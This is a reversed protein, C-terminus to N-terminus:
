WGACVNMRADLVTQMMCMRKDINEHISMYTRMRQTDARMRRRVCVCAFGRM